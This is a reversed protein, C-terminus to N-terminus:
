CKFSSRVVRNNLPQTPRYNNTIYGSDSTCTTMRDLQDFSINIPQALLIWTVNETLPPITLSGPYTYFRETCHPILFYPSVEFSSKYNIYPVKNFMDLILGFSKNPENSENADILVGIVALGDPSKLAESETKYLDTNWHVIHMEAAYRKGDITHECGHHYKCGNVEGWHFHMELFAYKHNLPGGSFMIEKKKEASFSINWGYNNVHFKIIKRDFRLPTLTTDHKVMKSNVDIPSQRKTLNWHKSWQHPGLKKSYDWDQDTM